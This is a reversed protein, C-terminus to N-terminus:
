KYDKWEIFQYYRRIVWRQFRKLERIKEDYVMPFPMVGADCLKHFRLFVDEMTEGPWYGVLMYVMINAPRIGATTLYGLGRFFIKEDKANDWATYIRKSKFQDDFYKLAALRNASEENILRINIGQNFSVKFDGAEIEDCKERWNPQGFFDNDLLCIEKPTEGGRWIEAITKNDRNRGEKKPVVCFGCKLRCGRQSFGLSHRYKPYISYDPAQESEGTLQEITNLNTTGTGGLLAEPFERKFLERVNLSRTFISSGFVLDFKPEFLDRVPSRSFWIRDGRKKHYTSLGMLALNPLKGDLQTLRVNMKNRETQANM